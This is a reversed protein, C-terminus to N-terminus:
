TNCSKEELNETLIRRNKAIDMAIEVGTEMIHSHDIKECNGPM